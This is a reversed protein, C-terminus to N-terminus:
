HLRRSYLIDYLPRCKSALAQAAPSAKETKAFYKEFGTSKEVAAYWHKAWVGDTDRPGSPWSLMRDSFPVQLAECLLRLMRPPDLLVDKADIVPPAKGTKAHLQEFLEVQQPLGTDAIDANPTVKLLSAAMELPDRILFANTLSLVWARDVSALLHHSMHKQYWITRSSTDGAHRPMSGTLTAAVRRWDTECKAIVEDRGPHDANTKKLYFGYLPEDCVVTDPRNEWARMMATSINRPGSWMAIRTINM